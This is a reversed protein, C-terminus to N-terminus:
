GRLALALDMVNTGTPGTTFLADRSALYTGSDAALLYRAAGDAWTKGDVLGGAATTPGDSGDTGDHDEDM